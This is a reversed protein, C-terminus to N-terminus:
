TEGGEGNEFDFEGQPFIKGIISEAVFGARRCIFELLAERAPSPVEWEQPISAVLAVVHEHDIRRLNDAWAKVGDQTIFERFAPFLGYLGEDKVRDVRRLKAGLEGGHDFCHTHDIAKLVVRGPSAGDESLFVNDMNPKRRALDAPHRDCNRVWTDFVVLGAIDDPNDIEQLSIAQGDWERRRETRTVIAPGPQAVKGHGLPIEDDETVTMIAMDFTRLGLWAALKTGVWECALVHPGERNGLAKIFGPGADTVIEAPGTSTAVHKVFRRFTKPCWSQGPERTVDRGGRIM